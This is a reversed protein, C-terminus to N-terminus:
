LWCGFILGIIMLAILLFVLWRQHFWEHARARASTNGGLYAFCQPCVEAADWIEAGCDPCIASEHDLRQIDESDPDEDFEAEPGEHSDDDPDDDYM